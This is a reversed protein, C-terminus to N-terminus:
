DREQNSLMKKPKLRLGYERFRSFVERLNDLHEQFSRGLVCIDDLFSLVAKWNLGRLVLGMARAYTSPSCSLGFPLKNFEFLGQRTRFATKAKSDPHVPIQWYASNADLKSFWINEDLADICETMLPLPFVDKKTVSNLLQYDLCWRISGDKKRILVPAAAWSSTSPQIVGAKLMKDLIEEEEKVFHIPTRRLPLKIPAADGTDIEHFIASFDGLDYEDKAFVDQFENVLEEM